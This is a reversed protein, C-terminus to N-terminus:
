PCVSRGDRVLFTVTIVPMFIRFILAQTFLFGARSRQGLLPTGTARSFTM